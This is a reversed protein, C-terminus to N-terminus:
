HKLASLRLYFLARSNVSRKTKASRKNKAVSACIYKISYVVETTNEVKITSSRLLMCKLSQADDTCRHSVESQADEAFSQKRQAEGSFRSLHPKFKKVVVVGLVSPNGSKFTVLFKKLVIM